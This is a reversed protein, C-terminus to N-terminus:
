ATQHANCGGQGGGVQTAKGVLVAGVTVVSLPQRPRLCGPRHTAVRHADGAGRALARAQWDLRRARDTIIRTFSRSWRNAVQHIPRQSCTSLLSVWRFSRASCLGTLSEACFLSPSAAKPMPMSTRRAVVRDDRVPADSTPLDTMLVGAAAVHDTAQCIHGYAHRQGASPFRTPMAM